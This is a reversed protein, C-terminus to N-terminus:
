GRARPHAEQGAVTWFKRLFNQLDRDTFEIGNEFAQWTLESHRWELENTVKVAPLLDRREANKEDKWKDILTAEALHIGSHNLIESLIRTAGRIGRAKMLAVSSLIYEDRMEVHSHYADPHVGQFEPVFAESKVNKALNEFETVLRRTRVAAASNHYLETFEDESDSIACCALAFLNEIFRANELHTRKHPALDKAKGRDLFGQGRMRERVRDKFEDVSERPM